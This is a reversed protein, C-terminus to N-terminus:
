VDIVQSTTANRVLGVLAVDDVRASDGCLMRTVTRRSPTWLATSVTANPPVTLHRAPVTVRLSDFRPHAIEVRWTGSQLSIEFVGNTDTTAAVSSAATLTIRAGRLPAFALSDFVTARLTAIRPPSDSRLSQAVCASLHVAAVAFLVARLAHRHSM